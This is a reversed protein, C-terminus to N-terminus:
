FNPLPIRVRSSDYQRARYEATWPSTRLEELGVVKGDKVREILNNYPDIGVSEPKRSVTLSIRQEGSRIRHRQFYPRENGCLGCDGGSREDASGDRDGHQGGAGEKWNRRADRSLRCTRDPVSYRYRPEDWGQKGEQM